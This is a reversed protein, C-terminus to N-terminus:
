NHTRMHTSLTGSSRYCKGCVECKFPRANTHTMLHISLHRQHYFAKNCVQCVHTRQGTHILKHRLLASPDKFRRDCSKCAHPREDKHIRLHAVLSSKSTFSKTCEPCPFPREGTHLRQHSELAAPTSLQKDCFSCVTQKLRKQRLREKLTDSYRAKKSTENADDRIQEELSELGILVSSLQATLHAPIDGELEKLSSKAVAVRNVLQIKTRLLEM